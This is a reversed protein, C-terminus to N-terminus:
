NNEIIICVLKDKFKFNKKYKLSIQNVGAVIQKNTFTLLTSIFRILIMNIYKRKTICVEYSFKKIVRQPYLKSIYKLIKQDRKLSNLLKIKMLNFCPIENKYPDLTLIFIKGSPNLSKTMQNLLKKIQNFKLLHITQKILILDFKKKNKSFFSLADIKEFKIRKDKDKHNVLDIGIPKNNLNLKSKLSGIIKGRGCGIDLIQSNRNLKCNINLFNNFKLIYPRSSLWNKKDWNKIVTSVM